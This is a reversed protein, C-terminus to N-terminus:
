ADAKDFNIDKIDDGGTSSNDDNDKDGPNTTGNDLMLIKRRNEEFKREYDESFIVLNKVMALM